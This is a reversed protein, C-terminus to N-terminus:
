RGICPIIIITAIVSVAQANPSFQRQFLFAFVGVAPHSSLLQQAM